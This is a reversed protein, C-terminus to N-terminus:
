RELNAFVRHTASLRPVSIGPWRCIARVAYEGDELTVGFMAEGTDTTSVSMLNETGSDIRLVLLDVDVGSRGTAVVMGAQLGPTEVDQDSTTLFTKDGTSPEVEADVFGVVCVADGEEDFVFLNRSSRVERCENQGRVSLRLSGPPVTVSEFRLTGSGDVVSEPGDVDEGGDVAVYLRMTFGPTLTTRVVVNIQLGPRPDVDATPHVSIGDLGWTIREGDCVDDPPGQCAVTL